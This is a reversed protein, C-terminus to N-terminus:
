QESGGSVTRAVDVCRPRWTRKSSAPKPVCTGKEDFKRESTKTKAARSNGLRSKPTSTRGAVV